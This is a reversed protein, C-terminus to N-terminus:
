ASKSSVKAISKASSQYEKHNTYCYLRILNSVAVSNGSPIALDYHNKTRLILEENNDPAFFFDGIKSDWFHELIYDTYRKAGELYRPNSDVSFIDLLASTFFVYDDLYGNIKSSGNMFIRNLKTGERAFEEIFNIAKRAADLYSTNGTAKYGSIFGSIMLGNWSTLIKKDTEPKIRLKRIEYLKKVM